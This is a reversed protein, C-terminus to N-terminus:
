LGELWNNALVAFDMMNVIGDGGGSPAIDAIYYNAGTKLWQHTFDALSKFNVTTQWQNAFVAWDFFNVIGDGENPWVDASLEELLWDECLLALDNIEVGDPCVFDGTLPIQWSLKPYNTGECIDWIDNPGNIVEGVFDWSADTFTNRMQMEATTKGAAGNPDPDINAVGDATGSANIDWFCSILSGDYNYGLLGGVYEYGSVPSAAYCSVISGGNSGLLGGICTNYQTIGSTFGTAYCSILVGDSQGVLGGVGGRGTTSSTSYCSILSGANYGVIGGIAFQGIASGAAFCNILNGDNEGALGGVAGGEGPGSVSCAAHCSTISGSNSGVIGGAGSLSNVLGTVVCSILSGANLSTLGGVSVRGTINVDMLNLNRIQGSPGIYGFLGVYDIQEAAVTLNFITHGNGEFIGTFPTGQFDFDSNNTDPAILAQVFTLGTLNIDATLIFCKNYDNVDAALALLDDACSIRYPDNPEGSGGSYKMWKLKPYAVGENIKWVNNFDWGTFNAQQKMQITTLGTGGASETMGSTNVDWFCATFTGSGEEFGALGGVNDLGSVPGASYSDTISGSNDGTLGGVMSSGSVAGTAFCNNISGPSIGVLGGISHGTAASVEATSYSSEILGFNTGLLGGISFDTGSITGTSYCSMITVGFYTYGVVGGVNGPGSVTAAASCSVIANGGEIYGVIGGTNYNTGTVTGTFSCSTITSIGAIGILGGVCQTGSVIGAVHCNTIESDGGSGVLGGVFNHGIINTDELNLNRLQGGSFRGFLGIENESPRNITLNRITHGDGDFVGSFYGIDWNGVVQFQTGTYASMNIDATLKFYKSFDESHNGIDNLDEPTAILYPNNPEGSGGSYKAFASSTLLFFIVLLSILYKRKRKMSKM